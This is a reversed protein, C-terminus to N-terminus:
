RYKEKGNGSPHEKETLKYTHWDLAGECQTLATAMHWM